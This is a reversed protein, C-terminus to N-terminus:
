LNAPMRQPLTFERGSATILTITERGTSTAALRIRKVREGDAYHSLANGESAVITYTTQALLTSPGTPINVSVSATAKDTTGTLAPSVATTTSGTAPVVTLKVTNGVPVGTTQFAVNVPNATNAPLVIDDSGTPNAPAAQGAVSVIRLTPLGAIFVTSPTSFSYAPNTGSTRTINEAELRIRGKAGGGGPQYVWGAANGAGGGMARITGNGAITTAVIRIAGGSGGGGTGGEGPGSSAGANGGDASVTGTVTVTGSAAILLAGGGGGGGSGGFSGGGAGGGGGSGGVLPLLLKSGYAIGGSGQGSSANGGNGNFGGGGGGHPGNSDSNGGTGGGPGLGTGGVEGPAGGRGGAYGGPGGAGPLGDDGINGDGSAGVPTSWNGDVDITGAITVDGSALITVPTNTANNKFTVTVGSPINVNAFNFVGSPPVQLQTDVTPSFDGDAGTSGSNFAFASLAFLSLVAALCARLLIPKTTPKM